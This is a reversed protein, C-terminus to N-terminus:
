GDHDDAAAMRETSNFDEIVETIKGDHDDAAAMRETSNSDENVENAFFTHTGNSDGTNNFDETGKTKLGSARSINDALTFLEKLSDPKAPKSKTSLQKSLSRGRTKTIKRDTSSSGAEDQLYVSEHEPRKQQRPMSQSRKLKKSQKKDKSSNGSLTFRQSLKIVRNQDILNVPNEVVSSLGHSNEDPIFYENFLMDWRPKLKQNICFQKQIKCFQIRADLEMKSKYVLDRRSPYGLYNTKFEACLKWDETFNGMFSHTWNPGLRIASLLFGQADHMMRYAKDSNDVIITRTYTYDLEMFIITTAPVNDKLLIKSGFFVGPINQSKYKDLLQKEYVKEITGHEFAFSAVHTQFVNAFVEIGEPMIKRSYRTRDMSVGSGDSFYLGFAVGECLVTKSRRGVDHTTTRQTCWQDGHWQIHRRNQLAFDHTYTQEGSLVDKPLLELCDSEWFSVICFAILTSLKM